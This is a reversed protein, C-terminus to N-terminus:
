NQVTFGGGGRCASFLSRAANCGGQVTRRRRLAQDHLGREPWPGPRRVREPRRPARRPAAAQTLFRVRLGCAALTSRLCVSLPSVTVIRASTRPKSYFDNYGYNQKHLKELMSIDNGKPVYIEESIMAMVGPMAVGSHPGFVCCDACTAVPPSPPPPPSSPILLLLAHRPLGTKRKEILDLCGQNDKFSIAKVDLQERKYIQMELMFIHENFHYQLKENTFNICLQEFSNIKFCEFGFIDLVGISTDKHGTASKKVGINIQETIWDFLKSYVHKSINDRASKAQNANLTTTVTDKGAKVKRNTLCKGFETENVGLLKACLNVSKMDTIKSAADQGTGSFKTQGNWLVAAVVDFVKEPDINLRKFAALM